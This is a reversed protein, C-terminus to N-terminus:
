LRHGNIQVVRRVSMREICLNVRPFLYKLAANLSESEQGSDVGSPDNASHRRAPTHARARTHTNTHNHARARTDRGGESLEEYMVSFGGDHQM